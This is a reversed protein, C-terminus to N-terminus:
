PQWGEKMAASVIVSELTMRKDNSNRHALYNFAREVRENVGIHIWRIEEIEGTEAGGHLASLDHKFQSINYGGKAYKDEAMAVASLPDPACLAALLFDKPLVSTKTTLTEDAFFTEHLRAEDQISRLSVGANAALASLNATIGVGATDKKGGKLKEVRHKLEYACAGRVRWAVQEIGHAYNALHIIQEDEMDPIMAILRNAASESQNLQHLLSSFLGDQVVPLGVVIEPEEEDRDIAQLIEELRAEEVPNPLAAEEPEEDPLTPLFADPDTGELYEKRSEYSDAECPVFEYREALPVYEQYAVQQRLCYDRLDLETEFNLVTM